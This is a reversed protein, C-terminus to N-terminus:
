LPQQNQNVSAMRRKREVFRLLMMGVLSGFLAGCIIDLPYHVGLYIRSYSVVAAWILLWMKAKPLIPKLIGGALVAFGFTNAAHSSIFGYLGCHSALFRMQSMLEEEQCPRPRKFVEKFLQVSGQDTILIGVVCLATFFLADQLGFKKFFLYAVGMYLPIWVWIESFLVMLKDLWPQGLNNLYLFLETDWQLIEQIMEVSEFEAM